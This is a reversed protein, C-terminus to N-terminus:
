QNPNPNFTKNFCDKDILTNNAIQNSGSQPNDPNGHEDTSGFVGLLHGLEHLIVAALLNSGSPGLSAGYNLTISSGNSSFTTQVPNFFRGNSNIIIENASAITQAAAGPGAGQLVPTTGYQFNVDLLKQVADSSFLGNCDGTKNLIKIAQNIAKDFTKEQKKTAGPLVPLSPGNSAPGFNWAFM